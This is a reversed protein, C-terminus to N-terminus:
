CCAGGSCCSGASPSETTPLAIGAWRALDSRSPYRGALAVEGAVLTLPLS